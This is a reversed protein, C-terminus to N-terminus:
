SSYSRKKQAAAERLLSEAHEASVGKTEGALMRAIEGRLQAETRLRPVEIITRGDQERKRLAYHADAWSAIQALHTVCLVQVGDALTRLRVGVAKATSGGIGADVEDFILGLRERSRALAVVVALMVRSLEGGSAVRGLPRPREGANAALGFETREWGSRGIAERRELRAEFRADPMALDRLEAAVASEIAGAAAERLRSLAAAAAALDHQLRVTEARLAEVREARSEFGEIIEAYRERAAFVQVITGGYKKKLRDLQDLRATIGELEAPDCDTADIEGALTTVVDQAESQLARATEALSALRANYRAVTDLARVAAGLADGEEGTLAAHAARLASAIKEANTLYARRERLVDDEGEQMAAAVIEELAFQAFNREDLARAAGAELREFADHAAAHREFRDLVRARAELLEPGGFRDISELQMDAGLLRQHEHQGVIEVLQEAVERLQAATANRGNIRASSKGGAQLERELIADEGEDLPFGAAAFWLALPAAPEVRLVVRARAADARVLSADSREGLVFAIAGLLMTKGSGTEGTFITLRESFEVDAQEILGFDAIELRRLSM